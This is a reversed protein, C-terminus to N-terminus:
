EGEGDKEGASYRSMSTVIGTCESEPTLALTLWLLLVRAPSAIYRERRVDSMQACQDGSSGGPMMDRGAQDRGDDVDLAAPVTMRSISGARSADHLEHRRSSAADTDPTSQGVACGPDLGARAIERPDDM